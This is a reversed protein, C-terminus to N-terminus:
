MSSSAEKRIGNVTFSWGQETLNRLVIKGPKLYLNYLQEKLKNMNTQKIYKYQLRTEMSPSPQSATQNLNIKLISSQTPVAFKIIRPANLLYHVVNNEEATM